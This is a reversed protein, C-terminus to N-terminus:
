ENEPNRNTCEYKERFKRRWEEKRKNKGFRHELFHERRHYHHHGGWGNGLFLLKLLVILGLSQFFTLIPLGFISPMLNNWLQMVLFTYLSLFAIGMGVKGIIKVVKM